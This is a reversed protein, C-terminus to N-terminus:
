SEVSSNSMNQMTWKQIRYTREARRNMLVQGKPWLYPESENLRLLLTCPFLYRAAVLSINSGYNVIFESNLYRHLNEFGPAEVGVLHHSIWFDFVCDEPIFECEWSQIETLFRHFAPDGSNYLANANIHNYRHPIPYPVRPPSGKVWFDESAPPLLSYLQEVWRPRIPMVESDLLLFYRFGREHLAQHVNYFALNRQLVSAEKLDAEEDSSVNALLFELHSFCVSLPEFLAQFAIRVELPAELHTLVILAPKPPLALPPDVCSHSSSSPNSEWPSDKLPTSGILAACAASAPDTWRRINTFLRLMDSASSNATVVVALTKEGFPFRLRENEVSQVLGTAATKADDGLTNAENAATATDYLQEVVRQGEKPTRASSNRHMLLACPFRSRAEELGISAYHNVIFESFIYRHALDKFRRQVSRFIMVDYACYTIDDCGDLRERTEQIFELFEPDGSNYLANGNMHLIQNSEKAGAWLPASGKVWFDEALPPILGYLQELWRPRMPFVDPELSIFYGVGRSHMIKHLDFLAANPGQPYGDPAHTTVFTLDRFCSQVPVFLEWLEHKFQDTADKNTAIVLSPKLPLKVPPAACLVSSSQRVTGVNWSTRYLSSVEGCVAFDPDAWRAMSVRLRAMDVESLTMSIVVALPGQKTRMRLWWIGTLLLLALLSLALKTRHRVARYNNLMTLWRASCHKRERAFLRRGRVTKGMSVQIARAHRNRWFAISHWWADRRNKQSPDDVADGSSRPQSSTSTASFSSFPLHRPRPPTRCFGGKSTTQPRDPLTKNLEPQQNAQRAERRLNWLLTLLSVVWVFAVAAILFKPWRPKVASPALFDALLRLREAKDVRRPSCECIMAGVGLTRMDFQCDRRGFVGCKPAALAAAVEAEGELDFDLPEWAPQYAGVCQLGQEQYACFTACNQFVKVTPTYKTCSGCYRDGALGYEHPQWMEVWCEDQERTFSGCKCLMQLRATSNQKRANAAGDSAQATTHSGLEHSLDAWCPFEQVTQCQQLPVSDDDTKEASVVRRGLWAGICVLGTEQAACFRDCTPFVGMSRRDVLAECDQCVLESGTWGVTFCETEPKDSYRCFSSTDEQQGKAWVFTAYCEEEEECNSFSGDSCFIQNRGATGAGPTVCQCTVGSVDLETDELDLFSESDDPAEEGSGDDSDATEAGAAEAEEEEGEEGDAAQDLKASIVSEGQTPNHRTAQTDQM